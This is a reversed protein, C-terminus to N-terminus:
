NNTAYKRKFTIRGDPRLSKEILGEKELYIIHSLTEGIALYKQFPDASEWTTNLKWEIKSAIQYADLEKDKLITLIEELRKNHHERIERIRKYADNFIYEHGPLVLSINLKEIKRLSNLYDLLPNREMFYSLNPTITPLIHDGCIIINNKESYLCLHGPTHGPTWIVKFSVDGINIHEGEELTNSSKIIELYSNIDKRWYLLSKLMDATFGLSKYYEKFLEENEFNEILKKISEKEKSYIFIKLNDNMNKLRKVLGVHDIHLHTIIISEMDKINVKISLLADNLSEFSEDTNAGTDILTKKDNSVILYSNLHKLPINPLKVKILYMENAIKEINNMTDVYANFYKHIERSRMM